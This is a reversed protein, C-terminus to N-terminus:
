SRADNSTRKRAGCQLYSPKQGRRGGADRYAEGDKSHIGARNTVHRHWWRVVRRHHRTM